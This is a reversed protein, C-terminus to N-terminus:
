LLGEVTQKYGEVDAGIIENTLCRGESDVFLTTPVGILYEFLGDMFQGGAIINTYEIGSDAVLKKATEFEASDTSAVDTVIGIIQVNDPLEADWAALEPMEGICPPCFTGWINVVTIDAQAFISNDVEKGELDVSHFEPIEKIVGTYGAYPDSESSEAQEADETDAAPSGSGGGCATLVGACALAAILLLIIIRKKM